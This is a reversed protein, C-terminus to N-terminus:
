PGGQVQDNQNEELMNGVMQALRGAQTAFGRV